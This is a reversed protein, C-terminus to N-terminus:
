ARPTMRRRWLGAGLLSSAFLVAAGPLPVASVPPPASTYIKFDAINDKQNANPGCFASVFSLSYMGSASLLQTYSEGEKILAQFVDQWELVVKTLTYSLGWFKFVTTKTGAYLYDLEFYGLVDDKYGDPKLDTLEFTVDKGGEYYFKFSDGYKLDDAYIAVGDNMLSPYVTTATAATSTLGVLALASLYSFTKLM